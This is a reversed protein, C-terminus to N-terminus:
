PDGQVDGYNLPQWDGAISTKAYQNKLIKRKLCKLSKIEEDLLEKDFTYPYKYQM